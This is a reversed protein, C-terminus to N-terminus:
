KLVYFISYKQVKGELLISFTSKSSYYKIIRILIKLYKIQTSQGDSTQFRFIHSNHNMFSNVASLPGYFKFSKLELAVNTSRQTMRSVSFFVYSM